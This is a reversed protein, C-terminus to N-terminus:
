VGGPFTLAKVLLFTEGVRAIAFEFRRGDELTFTLRKGVLMEFRRPEAPMLLGALTRTEVIRSDNPGSRAYEAPEEIEKLAYAAEGLEVDGDMIRGRGDFREILRLGPSEFM